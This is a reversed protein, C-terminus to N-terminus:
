NSGRRRIFWGQDDDHGSKSPRVTAGQPLNSDSRLDGKAPDVLVLVYGKEEKRVALQVPTGDDRFGVPGAAVVNLDQRVDLDRLEDTDVNWVRTRAIEGRAGVRTDM